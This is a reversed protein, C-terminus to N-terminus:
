NGKKTLKDAVMTSLKEYDIAVRESVDKNDPVEQPNHHKAVSSTTTDNGSVGVVIHKDEDPLAMVKAIADIKAQDFAAITEASM